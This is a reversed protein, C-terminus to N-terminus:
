NSPLASGPLSQHRHHRGCGQDQLRLRQHTLRLCRPQHVIWAPVCPQYLSLWDQRRLLTRSARRDPGDGTWDQPRVDFRLPQTDTWEPQRSSPHEHQILHPTTTGLTISNHSDNVPSIYVSHLGALFASMTPLLFPASVSPRHMYEASPRKAVFFDYM